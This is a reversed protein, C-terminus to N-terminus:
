YSPIFDWCCRLCRVVGSREPTTEKEYISTITLKGKAGEVIKKIIALGLGTGSQEQNQRSFQM